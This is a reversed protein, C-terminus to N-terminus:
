DSLISTVWFIFDCTFTDKFSNLILKVRTMDLINKIWAIPGINLAKFIELKNYMLIDLFEISNRCSSNLLIEVHSIKIELPNILKLNSLLRQLTINKLQVTQPRIPYFYSVLTKHFIPSSIIIISM